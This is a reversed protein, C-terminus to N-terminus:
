QKLIMKLIVLIVILIFTFLVVSFTGMFHSRKEKKSNEEM